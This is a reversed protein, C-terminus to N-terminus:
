LGIIVFWIHNFKNAVCTPLDIFYSSMLLVILAVFPPHIDRLIATVLIGFRYDTRRARTDSRNCILHLMSFLVVYVAIVTLVATIWDRASVRLPTHINLWEM